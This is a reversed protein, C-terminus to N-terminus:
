SCMARKARDRAAIQAARPVHLLDAIKNVLTREFRDLEHDALAVRWLNEVIQEKKEASFHANILTTFQFYDTAQAAEAEALSLLTDTEEATLDFHAQVSHVVANREQEKIARDSRMVEFLLAATAVRLEHQPDADQGRELELIHRDFFQKISRLVM